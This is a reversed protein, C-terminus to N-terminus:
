AKSFINIGYELNESSLNEYPKSSISRMRVIKLFHQSPCESKTRHENGSMKLIESTWWSLIEWFVIHKFHTPKKKYSKSPGPRQLSSYYQNQSDRGFIGFDHLHHTKPNEWFSISCNSIGFSAIWFSAAFFRHLKNAIRKIINMMFLGLLHGVFAQATRRHKGIIEM